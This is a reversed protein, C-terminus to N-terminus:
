DEDEPVLGLKNAQDYSILDPNSTGTGTFGELQEEWFDDPTKGETVQEPKKFLAEFDSLEDPAFEEQDEEQEVFLDQQWSESPLPSEFPQLTFPDLADTVTKFKLIENLKGQAREIQQYADRMRSTNLGNELVLILAYKKVPAILVDFLEGRFTLINSAEAGGMLESVRRALGLLEVMAPIWHSEFSGNPLEGAQARVRGLDDLLFASKGSLSQRLGMLVDPLTEEQEEEAGTHILPSGVFVDRTEPMPMELSRSVVTLFDDLSMPKELLADVELQEVQGKLDEVDLGTILIVKLDPYRKRIKRVLELGSIGPLRIDAVLLDPRTLASELIAEEASPVVVSEVPPELTKLAAQLFRGLELADDVILVRKM